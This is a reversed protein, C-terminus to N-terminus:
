LLVPACWRGGWRDEDGVVMCRDCPCPVYDCPAPEDLLETTDDLFLNGLRFKKALLGAPHEESIKACCRYTDGNVYTKAYRQGMRCLVPPRESREAPKEPPAAKPAAYGRGARDEEIKKLQDETGTRLASGKWAFRGRSIDSDEGPLALVADVVKKEDDTYSDPYVSKKKYVGQYPQVYFKIGDANFARKYEGMRPLQDPYAVYNVFIDSVGGDKLLRCKALFPEIEAFQPHFSASIRVRKLDVLDSFSQADFSLNTDLSLTHLGVLMNIVGDWDPYTTCEGGSLELHITGYLEQLRTWVETLRSLGPFVNMPHHRGWGLCTYNCYSCRFNCALVMEWNWFVPAPQFGPNDDRPAPVSRDFTEIPIRNEGAWRKFDKIRARRQAPDSSGDRSRWTGKRGDPALEVDFREPHKELENNNGIWLESPPGIKSIFGRNRLLFDKTREFDEATEGPFGVIVNLLTEIGAEACDRLVREACGVEYGKRMAKLIKPSGSEFGFDMRRLGARALKRLLGASMDPRFVAAGGLTLSPGEAILRDALRDLERLDLNLAAVDIELHRLSRYRGAQALIEKHIGEAKRHRFSKWSEHVNCFACRRLCGRSFSVPLTDRMFYKDLEFLSFDPIPLSDLDAVETRLGGDVPAGGSRVWAGQTPVPRGNKACSEVLKSFTIEGEGVVVADVPELASLAQARFGAQPGGLILAPGQDLTRIRQCLALTLPENCSWTSFGIAQTGEELLTKAWDDLLSPREALFGTIFDPDAWHAESNPEPLDPLINLDVVRVEHGRARLTSALYALGILPCRRILLPGAALVVKM